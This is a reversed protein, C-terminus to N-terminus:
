FRAHRNDEDKMKTRMKAMNKEGSPNEKDAYRASHVGPAGGLAEVELGSDDSFVNINFKEAITKSKISANEEITSGTEEIDDEFGIDAFTLLEFQDSLLGIIEKLKNQNNTAFLLKM